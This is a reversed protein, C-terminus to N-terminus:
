QLDARVHRRLLLMPVRFSSLRLYYLYFAPTIKVLFSTMYNVRAVSVTVLDNSPESGVDTSIDNYTTPTSATLPCSCHRLLYDLPPYHLCLPDLTTVSHKELWSHCPFDFESRPGRLRRWWWSSNLTAGELTTQRCGRSRGM